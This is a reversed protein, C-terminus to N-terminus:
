RVVPLHTTSARELADTFEAATQFRDTPMRALAKSVVESLAAPIEPALECLPAPNETV